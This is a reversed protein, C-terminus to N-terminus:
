HRHFMNLYLILYKLYTESDTQEKVTNTEIQEKIEGTETQEAEKQKQLLKAEQKAKIKADYEEYSIPQSLQTANNTKIMECEAEQDDDTFSHKILKNYLYHIAIIKIIGYFGQRSKYASQYEGNWKYFTANISSHIENKSIECHIKPFNNAIADKTTYNVYCLRLNQYLKNINNEIFTKNISDKINEPATNMIDFQTTKKYYYTKVGNVDEISYEDDDMVVVPDDLVYGAQSLALEETQYQQGMMLTVGNKKSERTFCYSYDFNFNTDIALKVLRIFFQQKLVLNNLITELETKGTRLLFSMFSYQALKQKQQDQPLLKKFADTGYVANFVDTVYQYIERANTCNALSQKKQNVLENSM